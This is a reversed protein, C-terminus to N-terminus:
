LFLIVQIFATLFISYLLWRWVSAAHRFHLHLTKKPTHQLSKATFVNETCRKNLCDFGYFQRLPSVGIVIVTTTASSSRYTNYVTPASPSSTLLQTGLTDGNGSQQHQLGCDPRWWHTRERFTLEEAAQTWGWRNARDRGRAKLITNIEGWDKRM